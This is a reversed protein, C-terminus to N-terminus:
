HPGNSHEALNPILEASHSKCILDRQCRAPSSIIVIILNRRLSLLSLALLISHSPATLFVSLLFSPFFLCIENQLFIPTSFPSTLASVSLTSLSDYVANIFVDRYYGVPLKLPLVAPSSPPPYVPNGNVLMALILRTLVACLCRSPSCQSVCWFNFSLVSEPPPQFLVSSSFRQRPSLALTACMCREETLLLLLVPWTGWPEMIRQSAQLKHRKPLAIGDKAKATLLKQRAQLRQRRLIVLGGESCHSASLTSLTLVLFTLSFM